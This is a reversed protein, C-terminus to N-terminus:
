GGSADKAVEKPWFAWRGTEAEGSQVKSLWPWIVGSLIYRALPLGEEASWRKCVSLALAINQVDDSEGVRRVRHETHLQHKIFAHHVFARGLGCQPRKAGPKWTPEPFGM